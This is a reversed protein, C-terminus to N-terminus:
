AGTIERLLGVYARKRPTSIGLEGARVTFSGRPQRESV